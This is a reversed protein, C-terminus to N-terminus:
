LICGGEDHIGCEDLCLHALSLTLNELCKAIRALRSMHYLHQWLSGSIEFNHQLGFFIGPLSRRWQLSLHSWSTSKETFMWSWILCPLFFVPRNWISQSKRFIPYESTTNKSLGKSLLKMCDCCCWWYWESRISSLSCFSFLVAQRSGRSEVVNNKPRTVVPSLAPVDSRLFESWRVDYGLHVGCEALCGGLGSLLGDYESLVLLNTHRKINRSQKNIRGPKTQQEVTFFYHGAARILSHHWHSAIITM